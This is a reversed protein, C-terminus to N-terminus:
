PGISGNRTISRFTGTGVWYMFAPGIVPIVGLKQIRDALRDEWSPATNSASGTIRKPSRAWPRKM